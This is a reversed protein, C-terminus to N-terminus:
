CSPSPLPPAKTRSKKSKKGYNVKNSWDPNNLAHIRAEEKAQTQFAERKEASVSKWRESLLKNVVASNRIGLEKQVTKRESKLFLMFANPPKKIYTGKDEKRKRKKPVPIPELPAESPMAAVVGDLDREGFLHFYNNGEPMLFPVSYSQLETSSPPPPPPPPPSSSMLPDTSAWLVMDAIEPCLEIVDNVDLLLSNFEEEQVLSYINDLPEMLITKPSKPVPIPELPAESPMATVVGDLDREGFLHFYNNGEPMLFPVSYSQLETSSPPPPPPPPPSSMLPDTSAWLVMDAIEPCLEIVDNVDLLLSNFEEEQVLSYINDLPEMLITKPSKPVPIPELPAESPIATVVGDLDREGFLHFCNNGEPMLFPVSYSQLETSSPPSPPPPSSSMLPDTSAWLVVDAIEPCLEIVDNVDLLLSNFEEEQVLSYINDLPEM